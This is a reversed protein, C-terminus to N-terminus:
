DTTMGGKTWKVGFGWFKFTDKEHTEVKFIIKLESITNRQFTGNGCFIFDDRHMVLIDMLNGTANHWLLLSNDYATVIGKLNILENLGYIYRKLKWIQSELYVDSPPRLFVEKEQM